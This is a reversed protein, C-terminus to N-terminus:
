WRASTRRRAVLSSAAHAGCDDRSSAARTGSRPAAYRRAPGARHAVRARAGRARALACARERWCCRAGRARSAGGRRRAKTTRRALYDDMRKGAATCIVTAGVYGTEPVGQVAVPQGDHAGTLHGLTHLAGSVAARAGAALSGIAQM